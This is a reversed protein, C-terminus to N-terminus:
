AERQSTAKKGCVAESLQENLGEVPAKFTRAFAKSRIAADVCGPRPHLYAGRGPARGLADVVLLGDEGRVVRVLAAKEVVQRCGLCTRKAIHPV